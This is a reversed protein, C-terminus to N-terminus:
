TAPTPGPPSTGAVLDGLDDVVVDAGAEALARAPQQRAVGVVLGFGGARGAAVGALADEVVAARGPAVDLVTAAWLYTDPAPKGALHRRAAVLGDVVTDFLGEIGGARLVAVCNESASVVATRVGAGRLHEVLAVSGPFVTVEGQALRRLVIQNKANGVAWLTTHGPPDTRDGPPLDIGRSALFDRVGDLRPKGDVYRAYDDAGFAVFDGGGAEDRLVDDFTEAWARAHVRATDTLVGDLDFLWAELDGRPGSAM